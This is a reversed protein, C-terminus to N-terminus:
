FMGAFSKKSKCTHLFEVAFGVLRDSNLAADNTRENLYTSMMTKAEPYGRLIWKRNACRYLFTLFIVKKIYSKQATPVRFHCFDITVCVTECVTETKIMLKVSNM